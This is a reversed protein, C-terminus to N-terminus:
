MGQFRSLMWSWLILFYLQMLLFLMVLEVTGMHWTPQFSLIDNKELVYELFGRKFFYTM